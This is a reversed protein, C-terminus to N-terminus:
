FLWRLFRASYFRICRDRICMKGLEEMYEEMQKEDADMMKDCIENM